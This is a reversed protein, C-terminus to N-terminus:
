EGNWPNFEGAQSILEAEDFLILCHCVGPHGPPGNVTGEGFVSNFKHNMPVLGQDINSQCVPCPIDRTSPHGWQKQTLGQKDWQRIRGDTEARAVETNVISKIRKPTLGEVEKRADNVIQGIFESDGLIDDLGAGERIAQAIRDSSLGQDVGSLVIRRLYFKTGDNVNRVLQAAKTEIERLTAPNKLEFNLGILDPSNVFGEEYLFQQVLEAADVAGESFAQTLIELIQPDIDDPLQWWKDGDLLKELEDLVRQDAKRVEPIEDFISPGGFWAAIRENTWQARDTESLNVIARSTLAFQSKLAAKILRRLQVDGMNKLITDFAGQFVLGLRDPNSSDPDIAPVDPDGYLARKTQGVNGRGGQSEPVRKMEREAQDDAEAPLAPKKAGPPMQPPAPEKPKPQLEVTMLGDKKLQAQADETQIVGSEVMAKFAQANVLRARGTAALAEDDREVWEFVLYPPLVENNIFNKTKERIMGLGTSRTERQRRIEGAMTKGSPDLGIDQLTLWYGAAVIRKQTLTTSDYMMESPPRGFPIWKAANTHEYLVGIKLPDVGQLLTQYSSVWEEAAGQEMDILDLIGAEPTDLLLKAYYQNGYYLLSIAMYVRQPPPMGYGKIKWETRPTLVIRGIENTSFVVSNGMDGQLRQMMPFEPDHTPIVTAGDLNVLKYVHGKPHPQTVKYTEGENDITPLVNNPWRVIEVNGGVPLDLADQWLMDIMQDFDKLVFNKYYRIDEEVKKEQKIDKATITWPLAQAYVILRDRCIIATPENRVINRWRDAEVWMPTLFDPIYRRLFPPIEISKQKPQKAM